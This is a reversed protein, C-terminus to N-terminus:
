SEESDSEPEETDSQEQDGESTETTEETEGLQEATEAASADAEAIQDKPMEVIAIMHDPETKIVVNAPVKLDEVRIKDGVEVLGSPDIVIEDILDAPLAEVDVYDIHKIVQLSAKEAPVDGEFRLPIQASVKENAKVSQFVVHSPLPNVPPHDVDKILTNYTSGEAVKIKIPHHKGASSFVKQFERTDVAIHISDKGHDQIVAPTVGSKRLQKVKKGLVDRKKASLEIVDSM